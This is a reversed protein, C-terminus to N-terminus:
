EGRWCGCEKISVRILFYTIGVCSVQSLNLLCSTWGCFSFSGISVEANDHILNFRSTSGIRRTGTSWSNARNVEVFVLLTPKLSGINHNPM